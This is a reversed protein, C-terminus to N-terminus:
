LILLKLFLGQCSEGVLSKLIVNRVRVHGERTWSLTCFRSRKRLYSVAIIDVYALSKGSEAIEQDSNLSLLYNSQFLSTEYCGAIGFWVRGNRTRRLHYATKMKNECIIQLILLVEKKPM